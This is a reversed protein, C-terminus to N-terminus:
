VVNDLKKHFNVEKIIGQAFYTINYLLFSYYKM